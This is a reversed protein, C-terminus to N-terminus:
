KQPSVIVHGWLVGKIKGDKIERVTKRANDNYLSVLEKKVSEPPTPILKVGKDGMLTQNRQSIFYHQCAKAAWVVTWDFNWYHMGGWLRKTDMLLTQKGCSAVLDRLYDGTKESLTEARKVLDGGLAWWTYFLEWVLALVWHENDKTVKELWWKEQLKSFDYNPKMLENFNNEWGWSKCLKSNKKADVKQNIEKDAGILEQAEQIKLWNEISNKEWTHSKESSVVKDTSAKSIVQINTDQKKIKDWLNNINVEGQQFSIDFKESVFNDMNKNPKFAISLISKDDFFRVSWKYWPTTLSAVKPTIKEDSSQKYNIRTHRWWTTKEAFVYDWEKSLKFWKKHINEIDDNLPLNLLEDQMSWILSPIGMFNKISNKTLSLIEQKKQIKDLSIKKNNVWDIPHNNQQQM